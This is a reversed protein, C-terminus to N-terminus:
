SSFRCTTTRDPVLVRPRYRWAVVDEVALTVCVVGRVGVVTMVWV